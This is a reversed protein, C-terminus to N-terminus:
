RMKWRFSSVEWMVFGNAMTEAVETAPTIPYGGFFRCGAALAGEACAEDGNMFHDGALVVESTM